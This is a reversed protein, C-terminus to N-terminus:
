RPGLAIDRDVRFIDDPPQNRRIISVQTARFVMPQWGSQLSEKLSLMQDKGRVQGVSLHPTFGRTHRAVEDCDPVASQLAAQLGVVAAKPDPALWLTHNRRGHQFHDFRALRLEFPEVARCASRLDGAVRDFEEPLLFPYLLTIHPMWRRIQRDHQRRIVQIPEWCEEAPILVVATTHTKTSM